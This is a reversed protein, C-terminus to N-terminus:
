GSLSVNEFVERQQTLPNIRHATITRGARLSDREEKSLEDLAEATARELCGTHVATEAAPQRQWPLVPFPPMRDAGDIGCYGCAGLDARSYIKSFERPGGLSIMGGTDDGRQTGEIELLETSNTAMEEKGRALDLALADGGECSLLSLDRLRELTGSRIPNRIGNSGCRIAQLRLVRPVWVTAKQGTQDNKAVKGVESAVRANQVFNREREWHPIFSELGEELAFKECRILETLATPSYGKRFDRHAWSFRFRSAGALHKRVLDRWWCGFRSRFFDRILHVRLDLVQNIPLLAPM